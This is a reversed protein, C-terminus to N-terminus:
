CENFDYMADIYFQIDASEKLNRPNYNAAKVVIRKAQNLQQKLKICMMMYYTTDAVNILSKQHNEANKRLKDLGGNTNGTALGNNNRVYNTYESKNKIGQNQIKNILRDYEELFKVASAIDAKTLEKDESKTVIITNMNWKEEGNGFIKSIERYQVNNQSDMIFEKCQAETAKSVNFKNLYALSKKYSSNIQEDTLFVKFDRYKLGIPKCKLAKDKYQNLIKEATSIDAKLKQFLNLRGNRASEEISNMTESILQDFELTDYCSETITNLSEVLMSNLTNTKLQEYLYELEFM